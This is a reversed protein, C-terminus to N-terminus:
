INLFKIFSDYRDSYFVKLMDESLFSAKINYDYREFTQIISSLDTTDIKLTVTIKTSSDCSSVFMALVKANNSEVINTIESASYDHITMEFIIIGGAKEVSIMKSFASILNFLSITGLYRKNQDLVPIVTIGLKAVLDIIEFIHQNEFIYPRAFSLSYNGIVDDVCENNYIDSDSILGLFEENNVIPLHSVRHMEMWALATSGTDSTRVVPISNVILDKAIM